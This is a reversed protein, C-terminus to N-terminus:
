SFLRKTNMQKLIDKRAQKGNSQKRETPLNTHQKKNFNKKNRKRMTEEM